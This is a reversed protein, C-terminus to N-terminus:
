FSLSDTTCVVYWLQLYAIKESPLNRLLFNKVLELISHSSLSKVNLRHCFYTSGFGVGASNIITKAKWKAAHLSCQPSLLVCTHQSPPPPTPCPSIACALIIKWTQCRTLTCMQCVKVCRSGVRWRTQGSKPAPTKANDWHKLNPRSSKWVSHSACWM